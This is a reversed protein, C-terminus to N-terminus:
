VQALANAGDNRTMVVPKAVSPAPNLVPPIMEVVGNDSASDPQEFPQMDGIKRTRLRAVSVGVALLHFGIGWAMVVLLNTWKNMNLNLSLEFAKVPYSACPGFQNLELAEFAYTLFSVYYAWLTFIPILRSPLYFGCYVGVFGIISNHVNSAGEADGFAMAMFFGLSSGVTSVVMLTVAFFFFAPASVIMPPAFYCLVAALLGKYIADVQLRIFWASHYAYLSYAGAAHERLFIRKEVFASAIIVAELICVTNMVQYLFNRIYQMQPNYGALGVPLSQTRLGLFLLAYFIFQANQMALAVFFGRNRAMNVYGRRLLIDVQMWLPRAYNEGKSKNYEKFPPPMNLPAVVRGYLRRAEASTAWADQLRDVATNDVAAPKEIDATAEDYMMDVLFDALNVKPPVKVGVKALYAPVAALAGSYVVHGAKMLLLCDFMAFTASRPQHITAAVTCGAQAIGKLTKVLQMASASDLGTTPEDLFLLSPKGLLEVGVTVRRSQGGSIGRVGAPDGILLDACRALELDAIVREVARVREESDADLRLEASFMLMERVTLHPFLADFQEVYASIRKYGNGRKVGNVLIRASVGPGQGRGRQALIDLLSSKGCGSPGMIATLTGPTFEATISKLIDKAGDKTTVVYRVNQFSLHAPHREFSSAVVPQTAVKKEWGHKRLLVACLLCFPVGFYVVLMAVTASQDAQIYEALCTDRQAQSEPMYAYSVLTNLCSNNQDILAAYSVSADPCSCSGNWARRATYWSSGPLPARPCNEGCTQKQICQAFAAM